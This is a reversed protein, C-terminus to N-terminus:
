PLSAPPPRGHTLVPVHFADEDVVVELVELGVVDGLGLQDDRIDRVVDPRVEIGASRVPIHIPIVFVALAILSPLRREVGVESEVDCFIEVEAVPQEFLLRPCPLLVRGAHDHETGELLDRLNDGLRLLVSESVIDRQHEALVVARLHELGVHLDHACRLIRQHQVPALQGLEAVGTLISLCVHDKVPEVPLPIALVDRLDM